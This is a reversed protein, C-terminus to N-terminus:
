KKKNVVHPNGKEDVIIEENFQDHHSPEEQIDELISERQM